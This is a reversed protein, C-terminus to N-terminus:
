YVYAGGFVFGVRTPGLFISAKEYGTTFTYTSLTHSWQLATM